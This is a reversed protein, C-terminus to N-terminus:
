FALLHTSNRVIIVIFVATRIGHAEDTMMDYERIEM